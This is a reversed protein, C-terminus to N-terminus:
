AFSNRPQIQLPSNDEPIHLSLCVLHLSEGGYRVTRRPPFYPTQHTGQITATKEAVAQKQVASWAAMDKNQAELDDIAKQIAVAKDRAVKLVERSDAFSALSPLRVHRSPSHQPSGTFSNAATDEHPSPTTPTTAPGTDPFPETPQPQKPKSVRKRAATGYLLCRQESTLTARRDDKLRAVSLESARASIEGLLDTRMHLLADKDQLTLPELKLSEGGALMADIVALKRKQALQWDAFEREAKVWSKQHKDVRRAATKAERRQEHLAAQLDVSTSRKRQKPAAEGKTRAARVARNSSSEDDPTKITAKRKQSTAHGAVAVQSAPRLSSPHSPAAGTGESEGAVRVGRKSAGSETRGDASSLAPLTGVEVSLLGAKAKTVVGRLASPLGDGSSARCRGEQTSETCAETRGDASTKTPTISRPLECSEGIDSKPSHEDSSGDIGAPPADGAIGRSSISARQSEPDDAVDSARDPDGFRFGELIEMTM